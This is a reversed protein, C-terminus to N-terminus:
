SCNNKYKWIFGYASKCKPKNNCVAWIPQKLYGFQREIDAFNDWDRILKGDKSFQSITRWSHSTGKQIKSKTEESRAIGIKSDGLKRWHGTKKNKINLNEIQAEGGKKTFNKFQEKQENTFLEYCYREIQKDTLNGLSKNSENLEKQVKSRM